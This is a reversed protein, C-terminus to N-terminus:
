NTTISKIKLIILFGMGKLPMGHWLNILFQNKSKIDSYYNNSTIVYKSKLIYYLSYIKSEKILQIKQNINSYKYIKNRHIWILEYELNINNNILFNYLANSNDSFIPDSSFLIQKKNKIILSNLLRLFINKLM